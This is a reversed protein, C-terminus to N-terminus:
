AALLEGSALAQSLKNWDRTPLYERAIAMVGEFVAAPAHDRMGSLLGLREAPSIAPIMWRMVVATEAPALSAVISDHLANLEADTYIAWLAANNQTEEVHMHILNEGIFVALRDHLRKITAARVTGASTEVAAALSRLAEIAQEHELHDDATARAGGPRRVEIATHVFNNEHELHGACFDMLARVQSLVTAVEGVDDGDLRAVCVLTDTMYARLARHIDRYIDVRGADAQQISATKEM